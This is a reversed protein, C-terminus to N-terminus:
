AEWRSYDTADHDFDAGVPYNVRHDLSHGDALDILNMERVRVIESDNSAAHWDLIHDILQKRTPIQM